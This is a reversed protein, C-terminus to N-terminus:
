EGFRGHVPVLAEILRQGPGVTMARLTNVLDLADDTFYRGPEHGDVCGSWEGDRYRATIRRGTEAALAKVAERVDARTM